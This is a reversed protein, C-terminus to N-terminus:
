LDALISEASSVDLGSPNEEVKLSKGIATHASACYDCGNGGATALAIQERVKPSFTGGSLAGSLSMYAELAAPSQALGKLINPIKGM